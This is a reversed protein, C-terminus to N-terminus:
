RAKEPYCGAVAVVVKVLRPIHKAKTWIKGPLSYLQANVSADGRLTGTKM